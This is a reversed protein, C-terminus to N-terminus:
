ECVYACVFVFVVVVVIVVVVVVVVHTGREKSHELVHVNEPKPVRANFVCRFVCARVRVCM